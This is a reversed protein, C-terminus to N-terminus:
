SAERKAVNHRERKGERGKGGGGSGDGDVMGRTVGVMWGDM